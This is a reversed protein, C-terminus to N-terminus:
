KGAKKDGLCNADNDHVEYPPLWCWFLHEGKEEIAKRKERPVYTGDAKAVADSKTKAYGIKQWPL